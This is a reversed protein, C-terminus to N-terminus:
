SSHDEDLLKALRAADVAEDSTDARLERRRTMWGLAIGIGLALLVFPGIWLVLTAPRLPPKYLVFDGYRNVMFDLIESDTKGAKIQSVVEQRLDQALPANSESISQNQCVVCRLQDVLARYRGQDEDSLPSDYASAAGIGLLLLLTFRLAHKM